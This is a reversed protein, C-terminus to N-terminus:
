SYRKVSLIANQCYWILARFYTLCVLECAKFNGLPIITSTILAEHRFMPSGRDLAQGALYGQQLLAIVLESWGRVLRCCSSCYVYQEAQLEAREQLIRRSNNASSLSGIHFISLERIRGNILLTM